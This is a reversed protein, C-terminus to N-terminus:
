LKQGRLWKQKRTTELWVGGIMGRRNEVAARKHFEWGDAPLLKWCGMKSAPAEDTRQERGGAHSRHARVALMRLRSHEGAGGDGSKV